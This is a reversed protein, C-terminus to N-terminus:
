KRFPIRRVWTQQNYQDGSLLKSESAPRTPFHQEVRTMSFTLTLEATNSAAKTISNLLIGQRQITEVLCLLEKVRWDKDALARISLPSAGWVCDTHQRWKSERLITLSKWKGRVAKEGPQPHFTPRDACSCAVLTGQSTGRQTITAELNNLGLRKWKCVDCFQSVRINVYM